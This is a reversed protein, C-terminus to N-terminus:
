MISEFHTFVWKEGVKQYPFEYLRMGEPRDPDEWLLEVTVRVLCLSDNSEEPWVVMETVPGTNEDSGRGADMAYLVGEIDRYHIGELPLLQDTIEDSFLTKLYSRLSEMTPFRPDSVPHYEGNEGQAPADHDLPLTTLDFWGYAEAAARYAALVAEDDPRSPLEPVPEATMEPTPVPTPTPTPAPAPPPVPAPTSAPTPELTESVPIPASTVEEQISVPSPSVAAVVSTPVPTVPASPRVTPQASPTEGGAQGCGSLVLALTVAFLLLNRKM